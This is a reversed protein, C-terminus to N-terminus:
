WHTVTTGSASHRDSKKKEAAHESKKPENDDTFRSTETIREKILEKDFVMGNGSNDAGSTTATMLTSARRQISHGIDWIWTRAPLLKNWLWLLVDSYIIPNVASNIPILITGVPVYM